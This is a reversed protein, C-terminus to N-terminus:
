SSSKPTLCADDDPRLTAPTRAAELLEILLDVKAEPFHSLMEDAFSESPVDLEELLALGMATICATVVRRDEVRRTRTVLGARMMRDRLRSVDPVQTILRAAIEHRCLGAAGAGRLIRLVNYQTATIGRLRLSQDWAHMLVATTRALQLVLEQRKSSFPKTQKIERQLRSAM